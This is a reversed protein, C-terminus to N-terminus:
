SVQEVQEVPVHVVKDIFQLHPLEITQMFLSVLPVQRQAVVRIGVVRPHRVRHLQLITVTVEVVQVQPAAFCCVPVFFFVKDFQLQTIEM